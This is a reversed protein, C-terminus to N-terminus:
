CYWDAEHPEGGDNFEIGLDSMWKWLPIKWKLCYKEVQRQLLSHLGIFLWGESSDRRRAKEEVYEPSMDSKEESVLFFYCIENFLKKERFTMPKKCDECKEETVLAQASM